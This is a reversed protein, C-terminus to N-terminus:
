VENMIQISKRKGKKYVCVCVCVCVCVSPLCFTKDNCVETQGYQKRERSLSGKMEQNSCM